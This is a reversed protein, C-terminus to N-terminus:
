NGSAAWSLQEGPPQPLLADRLHSLGRRWPGTGEADGWLQLLESPETVVRDLVQVALERLDASVEPLPQKPGYHPSVPEGTPCQAAVIAAAAVAEQSVDADLYDHTNIVHILATRLIGEREDEAAMDLSGCFDGASDNDFPGVDWTGM